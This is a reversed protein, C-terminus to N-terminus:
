QMSELWINCLALYWWTSKTPPGLIEIVFGIHCVAAMNFFRFPWIQKVSQGAFDHRLIATKTCLTSFKLHQKQSKYFTCGQVSSCRKVYKADFDVLTDQSHVVQLVGWFRSFCCAYRQVFYHVPLFAVEWRIQIFKAPHYIDLVYDGICIKTVIMYLIKPPLPDLQGERNVRIM